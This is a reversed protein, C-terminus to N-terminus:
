ATRRKKNREPKNPTVLLIKLYGDLPSSQQGLLSFPEARKMSITELEDRLQQQLMVRSNAPGPVAVVDVDEGPMGKQFHCKCVVFLAMFLKKAAEQSALHIPLARPAPEYGLRPRLQATMLCFIDHYTLIMQMICAWILLEEGNNPKSLKDFNALINRELSNMNSRALGRLESMVSQPLPRAQSTPHEKYLFPRSRYIRYMCRFIHIDSLLNWLLPTQSGRVPSVNQAGSGVHSHTFRDLVYQFDITQGMTMQKESLSVLEKREPVHNRYLMHYRPPHRGYPVVQQSVVEQILIQLVPTRATDDLCIYWSVPSSIMGSKSSYNSSSSEFAPGIAALSQARICVDQTSPIFDGSQYERNLEEAFRDCRDCATTACKIRKLHCRICAGCYRVGAVEDKNQLPGRRRGRNKRDQASTNGSTFTMQQSASPLFPSNSTYMERQNDPINGSSSASNNLIQIGPPYNTNKPRVERLQPITLADDQQRLVRLSAADSITDVPRPSSPSANGAEDSTGSTLGPLSTDDQNSRVDLDDSDGYAASLDLWDEFNVENDEESQDEPYLSSHFCNSSDYPVTEPLNRREVQSILGPAENAIRELHYTGAM